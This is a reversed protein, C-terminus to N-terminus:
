FGGYNVRKLIDMGRRISDAYIPNSQAISNIKNLLTGGNKAIGHLEILVQEVARADLRSLNGLGPIPNIAIGKQRLHAAARAVINDTIGIYRTIGNEVSEYVVTIGGPEGGPVVACFGEAATAGGTSAASTTTRIVALWEGIGATLATVAANLAVDVGVDVTARAYDQTDPSVRMSSIQGYVSGNVGGTAMQYETSWIESLFDGTDPQGFVYKLWDGPNYYDFHLPKEGWPDVWNWPDNGVYATGNGLNAPDGWIGITDRTTFRGLEPSMWRTRYNYLGAVPDLWRGTYLVRNGILSATRPTGNPALVQPRGFDDYNYREVM